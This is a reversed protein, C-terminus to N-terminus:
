HRHLPSIFQTKQFSSHFQFLRNKKESKRITSCASNRSPRLLGITRDPAVISNTYQDRRISFVPCSPLSSSLSVIPWGHCRISEAFDLLENQSRLVAMLAHALFVEHRNSTFRQQVVTSSASLVTFVTYGPRRSMRAVASVVLQFRLLTYSFYLRVLSFPQTIRSFSTTSAVM